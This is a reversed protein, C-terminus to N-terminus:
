PLKRCLSQSNTNDKGLTVFNQKRHRRFPKTSNPKSWNIIQLTQPILLLSISFMEEIPNENMTQDPTHAPTSNLIKGSNVKVIEPSPTHSPTNNFAKASNPKQWNIIEPHLFHLFHNMQQHISSCSQLTAPTCNFSSSINKKTSTIYVTNQTQSVSNQKIQNFFISIQLNGAKILEHGTQNRQGTFVSIPWNFSKKRVSSAKPM